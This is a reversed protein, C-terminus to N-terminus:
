ITQMYFDKEAVLRQIESHLEDLTRNNWLIYNTHRICEQIRYLESNWEFSDSELFDEFTTDKDIDRKMKKMRSFRVRTSEETEESVDIGILYFGPCNQRLYKAEHPHRIVDIIFGSKEPIGDLVMRGVIDYGDFGALEKYLNQLTHRNAPLGRRELEERLLHSTSLIKYGLTEQLIRAVSTKGSYLRGTLGISSYQM